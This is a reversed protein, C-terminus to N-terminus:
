ILFEFLVRRNRLRGRVHSVPVDILLHARTHTIFEWRYLDESWLMQCYDVVTCVRSVSSAAAIFWGDESWRSDGSGTNEERIVPELTWSSPGRQRHILRRSGVSLWDCILRRRRMIALLMRSHNLAALWGSIYQSYTAIHLSVTLGVYCDGICGYM